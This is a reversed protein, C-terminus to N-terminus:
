GERGQVNANEGRYVLEGEGICQNKREYVSTKGRMYM